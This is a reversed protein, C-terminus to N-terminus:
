CVEDRVYNKPINRMGEKRVIEKLDDEDLKKLFSLGPM